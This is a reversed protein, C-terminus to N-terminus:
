LFPVESVWLSLALFRVSIDVGDSNGERTASTMDWSGYSLIGSYFRTALCSELGNVYVYRVM